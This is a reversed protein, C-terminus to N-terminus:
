QPPTPAATSAASLFKRQKGANIQAAQEPTLTRRAVAPSGGGGAVVYVAGGHQIYLHGADRAHYGQLMSIGDLEGDDRVLDLVELIKGNPGFKYLHGDANNAYTTGDADFLPMAAAFDVPTVNPDTSPDRDVGGVTLIKWDGDFTAIGLPDTAFKSYLQRQMVYRFKQPNAPDPLVGATVDWYNDMNIARFSGDERFTMGFGRADYDDGYVFGGDYSGWSADNNSAITIANSDLDPGFVPVTENMCPDFGLHTKGGDTIVDCSALPTRCDNFGSSLRVGCGHLAHGRTDSAVIPQLTKPDIRIVFAANWQNNPYSVVVYNGRHDVSVPVNLGPRQTGCNFQPPTSTSDTPPPTGSTGFQYSCLGGPFQPIGLAATAIHSWEVREFTNDAHVRVLWSGRPQLARNTTGTAWAVVTYLIDGTGILPQNVTLPSNVTVVPDGSFPTGALPDITAQLKGTALNWRTIRGSADPAYVSGNAAAIGFMQEYGNTQCGFSCFAGDVLVAATDTEWIPKLVKGAADAHSREEDTSAPMWKFAKLGYKTTSKEFFDQPEIFGSTTGMVVFGDPTVALSPEHIQLFGSTHLRVKVDADQQLREVVHLGTLGTGPCGAHQANGFLQSYECGRQVSDKATEDQILDPAARSSCAAVSVCVAMWRINM